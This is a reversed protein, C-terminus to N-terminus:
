TATRGDKKASQHLRQKWIKMDLERSFIVRVGTAGQAIRIKGGNSSRHEDLWSKIIPDDKAVGALELVGAVPEEKMRKIV